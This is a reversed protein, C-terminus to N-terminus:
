EAADRMDSPERRPAYGAAARAADSLLPLPGLKIENRADWETRRQEIYPSAAERKPATMAEATRAKFSAAVERVREIAAEGHETKTYVEAELVKGIAILEDKAPQVKAECTARLEGASPPFPTKRGQVELIGAAIAWTPLHEVQAAYTEAVGLAKDEDLRVTPWAHFM